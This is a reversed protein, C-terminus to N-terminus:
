LASCLPKIQQFLMIKAASYLVSTLPIPKQNWKRADVSLIGYNRGKEWALQENKTGNGDFKRILNENGGM